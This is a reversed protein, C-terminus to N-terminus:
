FPPNDIDETDTIISDALIAWQKKKEGAKNTWESFTLRGSVKFKDGKVIEKALKKDFFIVDVWQNAWTGDKQKAGMSCPLKVLKEFDKPENTVKVFVSEAFLGFRETM